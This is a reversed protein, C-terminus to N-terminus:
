PHVCRSSDTAAEEEADDMEGFLRDDISEGALRAVAHLWKSYAAAYRSRADLPGADPSTQAEVAPRARPRSHAAKM